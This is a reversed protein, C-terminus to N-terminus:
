SRSTQMCVTGYLSHRRVCRSLVVCLVCLKTMQCYEKASLETKVYGRPQKTLCPYTIAGSLIQISLRLTQYNYRTHKLFYKSVVDANYHSVHYFEFGLLFNM